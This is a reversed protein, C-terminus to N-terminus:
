PSPGCGVSRCRGIDKSCLPLPALLDDDHIFRNDVSDDDEWFSLALRLEREPEGEMDKELPELAGIRGCMLELGPTNGGLLSTLRVDDWCAKCPLTM